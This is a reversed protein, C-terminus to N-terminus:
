VVICKVSMCMMFVENWTDTHKKILLQNCKSCGYVTSDQFRCDLLWMEHCSGPAGAPLDLKELTVYGQITM